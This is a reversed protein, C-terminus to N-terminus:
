TKDRNRGAALERLLKEQEDFSPARRGPQFPAAPLPPGEAPDHGSAAPEDTYHGRFGAPAGDTQGLYVQMRLRKNVAAVMGDLRLLDRVAFAAQVAFLALAALGQGLLLAAAAFVTATRYTWAGRRDGLYDRHLGLPFLCLLAGATGRKRLLAALRLNASQLGGGGLDIKRWADSM